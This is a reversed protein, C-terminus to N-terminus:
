SAQPEASRPAADGAEAAPLALLPALRRLARDLAAMTRSLDVTDDDLFSRFAALYALGLIRARMVGRLGTASIGAAELMWSMSRPLLFVSPLADLQLRGTDRVIRKLGERSPRLADFRRMLVDFLRDHPPEAADAPAALVVADAQRALGDLIALKSPFLRYLEILGIGAEKAIDALPIERWSRDAALRLAAAIIAAQPDVARKEAAEAPRADPAAASTTTPKKAM